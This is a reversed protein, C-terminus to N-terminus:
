GLGAEEAVSGNLALVAAVTLFSGYVVVRHSADRQRSAAYATEVSAHVQVRDEAVGAQRLLTQLQTADAGRPGPLTAVLWHDVHKLSAAIVGAIDKDQLMGLVAVTQGQPWSGLQRWLCDVGQPNHGVDLWTPPDGPLRQWRGPVFAASAAEAVRAPSWWGPQQRCLLCWAALATVLNDDLIRSPPLDALVIDGASWTRTQPQWHFDRERQWVPAGARAQVAALLAPDPVAEGLVVPRGARVIGAKERAIEALTHGLWDQHDLGISTIVAVDPDILNVADLRGGLGIELVMLDPSQTRFWCWAALTTHEFYTLSIEGRAAEVADLAALLEDDRILRGGCSMREHFHLLHPSTYTAVHLGAATALATLAAVTSGKGNTGAVTVVPCDVRRLALRDAVQGVRDLGLDIASPHRQELLALWGAVSTPNM